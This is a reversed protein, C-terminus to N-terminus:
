NHIQLLEGLVSDVYLKLQRVDRRATAVHAAVNSRDYTSTAFSTVLEEILEILKEPAGRGSGSVGQSKLIYRVKQKRTPGAQKSELQFGKVSMVDEDPALEDIVERLAERLENAPGRFSIRGRNSLDALAQQYSLAASPVLRGLARIIRSETDSPAATVASAQTFSVPGRTAQRQGLNLERRAELDGLSRQMKALVSLYTTKLARGNTADLLSQMLGDLEDIGDVGLAALEPRASRFYHQVVEKGSSRLAASNIRAGPARQVGGRFTRALDVLREWPDLPAPAGNSM